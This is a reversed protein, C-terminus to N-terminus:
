QQQNSGLGGSGGSGSGSGGGFVKSGRGIQEDKDNYPRRMRLATRSCEQRRHDTGTTTRQREGMKKGNRGNGNVGVTRARGRAREEGEYGWYEWSCSRGGGFYECYYRCDGSLGAGSGAGAWCSEGADWQRGEGSGDTMRRWKM